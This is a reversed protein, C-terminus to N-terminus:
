KRWSAIFTLKNPFTPSLLLLDFSGTVASWYICRSAAPRPSLHSTCCFEPSSVTTVNWKSPAIRSSRLLLEPSCSLRDTRGWRFLLPWCDKTFDRTQTSLSFTGMWYRGGGLVGRFIEQGDELKKIRDTL